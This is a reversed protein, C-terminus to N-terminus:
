LRGRRPCSKKHEHGIIAATDTKSRVQVKCWKCIFKRMKYSLGNPGDYHITGREQNEFAM